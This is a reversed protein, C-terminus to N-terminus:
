TPSGKLLHQYSLQIGNNLNIGLINQRLLTCLCVAAEFDVLGAILSCCPTVLPPCSSAESTNSGDSLNIPRPRPRPKPKPNPNSNSNPGPCPGRASVLPFFLLNLTLFLPSM